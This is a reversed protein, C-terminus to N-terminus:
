LLGQGEKKNQEAILALLGEVICQHELPLIRERLDEATDQELVPVRRQLLIRGSDVGEDVLHVTCGSELDGAALVAEHVKLGYMGSGGHRPLLSPHINMIRGRHAAIFGPALISLFGALVIFDQGQAETQLKGFFGPDHRDLEVTRIGKARAAALGRCPRDAVVKTVTYPCDGHSLSYEIVAAMNSGTGSILILVNAKAASERILDSM